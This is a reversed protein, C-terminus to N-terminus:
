TLELRSLRPRFEKKFEALWKAGWSIYEQHQNSQDITGPTSISIRSARRDPLESWELSKGLAAHIADESEKLEQFAKKNQESNGTDIYLEVRFREEGTFAAGVNFGSVGAGTYFWSQAQPTAARTVGPYNTRLHELFMRWFEKYSQARPSSESVAPPLKNPPAVVVTYKPAPNSDGIRFVELAVGFFLMDDSTVSNLWRLASLHPEQFTMAIWILVGAEKGASYTILKGLHGHDSNGFQNEIVVPKQTRAENGALDLRFPGVSSEVEEIEIQLNLAENLVDINDKMWQSLDEQERPWIKRVEQEDLKKLKGLGQGPTNM